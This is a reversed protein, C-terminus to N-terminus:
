EVVFDFTPLDVICNAGSIEDCTDTGVNQAQSMLITSDDPALLAAVYTYDDLPLPATDGGSDACTFIEDFGMNNSAQTFLFSVRDAGVETCGSGDVTNQVTWTAHFVANDVIVEDDGDCGAGLSLGLLLAAFLSLRSNIM